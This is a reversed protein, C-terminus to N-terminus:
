LYKIDYARASICFDIERDVKKHEAKHLALQVRRDIASKAVYEGNEDVVGGRGFLLVDGGIRKLPLIVANEYITASLDDKKYFEQENWKRLAGAKKPRLYNYNINSEM